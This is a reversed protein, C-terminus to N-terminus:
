PAKHMKQRKAVWQNLLSDKLYTTFGSLLGEPDISYRIRSNFALVYTPGDFIGDKEQGVNQTLARTAEKTIDKWQTSDVNFRYGEFYLLGDSRDAFDGDDMYYPRIVQYLVGHVVNRERKFHVVFSTDFRQAFYLFLENSDAVGERSLLSFTEVKSMLYAALSDKPFYDSLSDTTKKETPSKKDEQNQCSTLFFVITFLFLARM